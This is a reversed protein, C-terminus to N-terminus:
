PGFARPGSSWREPSVVRGGVIVRTVDSATAVMPLQAPEAGGTRLSSPDLEVLDCYEGVAIGTSTGGAGSDLGLARYGGAGGIQWLQEPSFRGRQGSSLREGYELGRLELLPDIVANQDSGISLHAGADALRRAPGIGDGLDAETTPCMVVGVSAEGLMRIDDDTLHTAHVANLRASLLGVEALLATPTRGYAALSDANEQPQESLHIHLPVDAPLERAIEAMAERPVARVSHIAAGLTVLPRGELADRLRAWRDLWASASGDSFRRQSPEPPKGIGGTLYCTDLLVLRIGAAEAADALALEMGHAPPYPTGDPQHHVYHFEGVATYGCAVMESFVRTALDRYSDPNLMDAAAYMSTRWQWFDGGNDHTRGRLVRHFAHSHANGFGPVVLGLSLGLEAKLRSNENRTVTSAEGTTEIRESASAVRGAIGDSSQQDLLGDAATDLGTDIRSIRGSADTEILVDNVFHDGLWAQAARIIM